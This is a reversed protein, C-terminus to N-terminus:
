EDWGAFDMAMVIADVAGHDTQYYRPRVCIEVLGMDRYLNQAPVNDARVELFLREAEGAIRELVTELLLRGLGRGQCPKDVAINLIEAEGAVLTYIAYGILQQNRLLVLCRHKELSDAFQNRNWPHPTVQQEIASVAEIDGVDMPRVMVQLSNM